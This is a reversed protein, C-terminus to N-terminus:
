AQEMGYQIRLMDIFDRALKEPEDVFMVNFQDQMADLGSYFAYVIRVMNEVNIDNRVQGAEIAREVARCKIDFIKQTHELPLARNWSLVDSNIDKSIYGFMNKEKSAKLMEIIEEYFLDFINKKQNFLDSFFKELITFHYEVVQAFLEQKNKYYYYIPSRSINAAEAIDEIKTAAYGKKMFVEHATKIILHRQQEADAKTLRM